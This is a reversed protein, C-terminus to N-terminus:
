RFAAAHRRAWADFTGAKRGTVKEVSDTVGDAKGAKMAALLDLLADVYPAPIGSKLMGDKAAEPPVDVFKVPKGIASSLKAAYQSANMSEPGTLPYAKGEHGSGTLAAVAVAAIDAPDIAAWRGEGTPQYFAGQTKITEAWMLANSMFNGPRVMTWALGSGMLHKESRAHWKSFTMAPADAGIVSLKVVHRVGAKKAADVANIELDMGNVGASVLYLKEIGKLASAVSEKSDMDGEVIEAKGEFERAKQPSRVLLRPRQGKAILQRAVEGGTTGTAGLVLIM